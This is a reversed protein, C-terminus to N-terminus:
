KLTALFAIIDRRDESKKVGKFVMSTGPIFKKPYDIYGSLNKENWVIASEKMAKSSSYGPITGSTKGMIDHLNPGIKHKGGKETTHCTVCLKMFLKRGNVVDGM